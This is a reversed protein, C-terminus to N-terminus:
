SALERYLAAHAAASREWTFLRARELGRAVYPAPDALRRRVGDAIAERSTPNFLVAADGAVEPLSTTDSCAVPCGTAMAEVLPM